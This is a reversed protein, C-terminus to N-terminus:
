AGPMLWAALYATLRDELPQQGNLACFTLAIAQIFFASIGEGLIQPPVDKRFPGEAAWRAYLAIQVDFQEAIPGIEAIAAAGSHRIMVDFVTRESTVFDILPALRAIMDVISQPAPGEAMLAAIGTLRAGIIQELLADKDKFHAFFTGKAVGAAGVVEEVRLAEFGQKAILANAAALLKERTAIARKQVPKTM